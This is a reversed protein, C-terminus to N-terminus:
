SPSAWAAVRSVERGTSASSSVTGVEIRLDKPPGYKLANDILNRLIATVQIRDGLVQPLNGTMQIETRRAQLNLRLEAVVEDVVRALSFREFSGVQGFRAYEILDDIMRRLRRCSDQITAIHARGSPGLNAGCDEELFGLFAEVGRLPAKLDHSIVHGVESLERNRVELERNKAEIEARQRALESEAAKQAAISLLTVPTKSNYLLSSRRETVGEDWLRRSWALHSPEDYTVDQKVIALLVCVLGFLAAATAARRSIM